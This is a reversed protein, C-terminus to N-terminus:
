FVPTGVTWGLGAARAHLGRVLQVGSEAIAGASLGDGLVVQLQTRPRCESRLVGPSADDLQRGLDPRRLYEAHSGARSAVAVLGFERRIPALLPHQPDIEARVADRATAHDARLDLLDRTSYSAVTGELFVRAQTALAAQRRLQALVGGTEAIEGDPHRRTM